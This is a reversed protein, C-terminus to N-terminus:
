GADASASCRAVDVYSDISYPFGHLLLVPPGDSSGAEYYGIDLVGARVQKIPALRRESGKPQDFSAHATDMLALEPAVISVAAAGLFCRRSHKIENSM